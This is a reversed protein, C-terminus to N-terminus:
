TSSTAAPITQRRNGFLAGSLDIVDRAVLLEGLEFPRLPDALSAPQFPETIASGLSILGAGGSRAVGCPAPSAPSCRSFGLLTPSRRVPAERLQSLVFWRIPVRSGEPALLDSAARSHPRPRRGPAALPSVGNFFVSAEPWGRDSGSSREIFAQLYPTQIHADLDFKSRWNEYFMWVDADETSRHLDYNICGAEARTPEVLAALREGLGESTGPKAKVTAILTIQEPM